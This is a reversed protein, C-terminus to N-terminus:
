GAQGLAVRRHAFYSERSVLGSGRILEVKAM